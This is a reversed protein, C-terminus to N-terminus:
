LKSQVGSMSCIVPDNVREMANADGMGYIM